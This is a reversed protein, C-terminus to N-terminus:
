AWTRFSCTQLTPQVSMMCPPIAGCAAASFAKLRTSSIKEFYGIAGLQSSSALHGDQAPTRQQAARQSQSGGSGQRPRIDEISAGRRSQVASLLAFIGPGPPQRRPLDARDGHSRFAPGSVLSARSSSRRSRVRPGRISNHSSLSHATSAFTAGSWATTELRAPRPVRMRSTHPTRKVPSHRASSRSRSGETETMPNHASRESATASLAAMCGSITNSSPLIGSPAAATVRARSAEGPMRM